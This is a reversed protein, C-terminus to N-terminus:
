DDTTKNLNREDARRGAELLIATMTHRMRRDPIKLQPLFVFRGTAFALIRQVAEEDVADGAEAAFPIGESVTMWGRSEPSHVELTGTKRNFELGQLLETLGGGAIQGSLLDGGPKIMVTGELQDEGEDKALTGPDGFCYVCHFPGIEIEDGSALPQSSVPKGGVFTGNSSGKDSIVPRGDEWSIEAHLRSVRSSPISLTCTTQRGITFIKNPELEIPPAGARVLLHKPEPAAIRVTREKKLVSHCLNCAVAEPKNQYGCQPCKM